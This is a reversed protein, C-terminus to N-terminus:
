GKRHPILWRRVEMEFGLNLFAMWCDALLRSPKKEVLSLKASTGGSKCYKRRRSIEDGYEDVVSRTGKMAEADRCGTEM